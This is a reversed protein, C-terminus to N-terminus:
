TPELPSKASRKSGFAQQIRPLNVHRLFELPDMSLSLSMPKINEKPLKNWKIALIQLTNFFIKTKKQYKLAHTSHQFLLGIHCKNSMRSKRYRLSIETQILGRHRSKREAIGDHKKWAKAIPSSSECSADPVEPLVSFTISGWIESPHPDVFM